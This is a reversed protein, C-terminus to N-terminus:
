KKQYIRNEWVSAWGVPDFPSNWTNCYWRAVDIRGDDSIVIYWGSNKPEGQNWEIISYM